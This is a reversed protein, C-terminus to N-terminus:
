VDYQMAALGIAVGSLVGAWDGPTQQRILRMTPYWPSDARELQWRWDPVFPLLLWVPKGMAGALHAVASDVTVVLDMQSVLAATESFDTLDNGHDRLREMQAQAPRDSERIDKQLVHFDCPLALVDQWVALAISRAHDDVHSANGAWCIGIRQGQKPGLRTQWAVSRAADAFLYPITAPISDARTGFALPLSMLPCHLDYSLGTANGTLEMASAQPLTALLPLLSPPAQVIVRAGAKQALPAYRIFQLTDGLGQEAHLLLTKGALSSQGYWRPGTYKKLTDCLPARRWRVEYGHLGTAFDGRLLTLLAKNWLAPVCDPMRALVADFDAAAAEWAGLAKHAVGRNILADVDGPDCALARACDDLADQPRGLAILVAARNSFIRAGPVLQVARDCAELAEAWRGLRHLAIARNCHADGFDPSIRLATDADALSDAFRGLELLTNSRNVFADAYGADLAIAMDCAQLAEDLRGLRHLGAAKNSWAVPQDPNLALSQGLAYVGETLAGDQALATGLLYYTRANAGYRRILKRYLRIAQSLEGAQHLGVAQMLVANPDIASSKAM